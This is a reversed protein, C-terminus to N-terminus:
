SARSEQWDDIKSLWILKVPAQWSQCPLAPWDHESAVHIAQNYAIVRVMHGYKVQQVPLNVRPRLAVQVLERLVEQISIVLQCTYNLQRMGLVHQVRAVREAHKVQFSWQRLTDVHHGIVWGLRRFSLLHCCLGPKIIELQTLHLVKSAWANALRIWCLWSLCCSAVHCDVISKFADEQHLKVLWCHIALNKSDILVWPLVSNGVELWSGEDDLLETLSWSFLNHLSLRSLFVIKM